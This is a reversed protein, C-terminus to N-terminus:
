VRGTRGYVAGLMLLLRFLRHKILYTILRSSLGEPKFGVGFWHFYELPIQRLYSMQQSYTYHNVPAYLCKPCRIFAESVRNSWVLRHQDDVSVDLRAVFRSVEKLCAEFCAYESEFPNYRTSLSGERLSVLYNEKCRLVVKDVCNLYRYFYVMDEGYHIGEPFSLQHDKLIRHSFLKAVPGSDVLIHHDLLYRVMEKGSVTVDEHIIGAHRVHKISSMVLGADEEVADVMDKLYDPLVVDDSDVFCVWEGQAHSVGLNRAASAGKNQQHYVRIRKDKGVCTDCLESSGDTSGDDVLILEFDSYTQALLSEICKLLYAKTNYVPIVVSVKM